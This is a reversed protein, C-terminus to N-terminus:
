WNVLAEVIYKTSKWPQGKEQKREFVHHRMVGPTFKQKSINMIGEGGGSKEPRKKKELKEWFSNKEGEKRFPHRDECERDAIEEYGVHTSFLTEGWQQTTQTFSYLTDMQSVM